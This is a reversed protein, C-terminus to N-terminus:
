SGATRSGATSRSGTSTTTNTATPSSSRSTSTASARRSRVRPTSIVVTSGAREASCSMDWIWISRLRQTALATTSETPRRSRGVKLPNGGSSSASTRTLGSAGASVGCRTLGCTITAVDVSRRTHVLCPGENRPVDCAGRHDLNELIQIAEQIIQNSKRGKMDVVFGVGCADHEQSPDYLGHAPLPGPESGYGNYAVDLRVPGLPTTVRLGVGPTVRLSDLSWVEAERQWVRGVDVFAALRVRQSWVPSPLRLEANLVLLSNGGTPSPVPEQQSTDTIVYVRPGLENRGYGRVSNPGGGYFRQDPPVFRAAQGSLTIRQPLITGGRVRWAFVASRGIAYYRSIEVEGRNFEYTTDSGVVRSAHVLTVTSLSGRTPDLPSNLRDRVGTVTVAAFARRQRLFDRDAQDCLQVLSPEIAVAPEVRVGVDVEKM